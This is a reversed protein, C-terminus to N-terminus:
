YHRANDVYVRVRLEHAKKPYPNPASVEIDPWGLIAATLDDKLWTNLRKMQEPDDITFRFDTWEKELNIGDGHYSIGYEVLFTTITHHITRYDHPQM